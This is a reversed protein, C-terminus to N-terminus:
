YGISDYLLILDTHFNAPLDIDQNALSLFHFKWVVQSSVHIDGHIKKVITSVRGSRHEELWVPLMANKTRGIGYESPQKSAVVIIFLILAKLVHVTM